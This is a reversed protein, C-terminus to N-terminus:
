NMPAAQTWRHLRQQNAIVRELCATQAESTAGTAVVLQILSDYFCVLTTDFMGVAAQVYQGALTISALASLPQGFLYQLFARNLYLRFVTLLNNAALHQPVMHTEDYHTGVLRTPDAAQGRLNLVVQHYVRHSSFTRGLNYQAYVDDAAALAQEMWDLERGC